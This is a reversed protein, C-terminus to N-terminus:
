SDEQEPTPEAAAIAGLLEARVRTILAAKEELQQDTAELNVSSLLQWFLDLAERSLM